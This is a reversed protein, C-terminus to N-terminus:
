RQTQVSAFDSKCMFKLYSTSLFPENSSILYIENIEIHHIGYSLKMKNWHSSNWWIMENIEIHHHWYHWIEIVMFTAVFKWNWSASYKWWAQLIALSNSDKVMDWYSLNLLVCTVLRLAIDIISSVDNLLSTM